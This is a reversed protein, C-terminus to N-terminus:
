KKCSCSRKLTQMYVFQASVVEGPELLYLCWMRHDSTGWKWVLQWLLINRSQDECLKLSLNHQFIRISSLYFKERNEKEFLSCVEQWFTELACAKSFLIKKPVLTCNSHSIYFSCEFVTPAAPHSCTVEFPQLRTFYKSCRMKKM